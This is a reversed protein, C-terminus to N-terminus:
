CDTKSGGFLVNEKYKNFGEETLKTLEEILGENLEKFNFCSKGQMRKKLEKSIGDLLPPFAYVPMLHFSVYNKNITVAGFFVPQKNKLNIMPTDLYYNEESNVKVNMSSEYSQLINKLKNFILSFDQNSM